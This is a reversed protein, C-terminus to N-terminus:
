DRLSGLIDAASKSWAFPGSANGVQLYARIAQELERTSSHAGRRTSREALTAFWRELQNLWSAATPTFHVHCRPRGAVHREIADAQRKGCPSMVLHIDLVPPVNAEITRMFRAFESSSGRRRHTEGVAKRAAVDLAALWPTAPPGQAPPLIPQTRDLAEMRSKGDVCLVLARLPQNMYLGVIDRVRGAFMPGAPLDSTDQRHPQLGFAQWIRFVANQTMGMERAMSRTSWNRAGRPVTELTRAVVAQVRQDDITRPAGARPADLLGDLRYKVFRGRWKSVTQRTLGLLDAVAKNELDEACRLVIRARLAAAPASRSRLTMARLEDREAETLVLPAKPRGRM